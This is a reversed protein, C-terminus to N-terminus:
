QVTMNLIIKGNSDTGDNSISFKYPTTSKSLTKLEDKGEFKLNYNEGYSLTLTVTNYGSKKETYVQVDGDNIIKGPESYTSKSDMQFIIKEEVCDLKLMGQKIGLEIVRQNGTTGMTAITADIQKLMTTSQQLITQDQMQQIKPQAYSLVLGIMVFAILTYIVTEIWVQGVKSIFNKKSILRQKGRKNM